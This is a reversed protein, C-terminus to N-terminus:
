QSTCGSMTQEAFPMALPIGSPATMARLRIMFVQAGPACALVKPPLGTLQAAPIAVKSRSLFPSISLAAAIPSYMSPLSRLM